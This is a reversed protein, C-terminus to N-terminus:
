SYDEYSRGLGPTGNKICIEMAVRVGDGTSIATQRYIGESVNGVFYLKGAQRLGKIDNRINKRLFGLCPDRGIAIILYNSFIKREGSPTSCTLILGDCPEIRKVETEELYSINESRAAREWLLPLCKVKSSRNLITVENNSSFHLAYDFAADGAGIVAIRENSVQFSHIEYFIRDRIDEQLTDPYSLSRPKTGSAVVVIPCTFTCLNTELLFQGDRYDLNIVEEFRVGVGANELQKKFLKVLESGSIGDPFGLYNEVLNANRLLGGIEGKELLIPEVGHRKLQIATAIGAPGAGIIAVSDVKDM